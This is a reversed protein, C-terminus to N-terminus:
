CNKWMGMFGPKAAVSIQSLLVQLMPGCMGPMMVPQVCIAVVHFAFVSFKRTLCKRRTESLSRRFQKCLEAWSRSIVSNWSATDSHFHKIMECGCPATNILSCSHNWKLFYRLFAPFENWSLSSTPFIHAEAIGTWKLTLFFFICSEWSATRSPRKTSWHTKIKCSSSNWLM